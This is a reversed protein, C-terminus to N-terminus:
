PRQSGFCGQCPSISAGAIAVFSQQIPYAFFYAGYSYDGFDQYKSVVSNKAFAVYMVLHPLGVYFAATRFPQGAFLYLVGVM